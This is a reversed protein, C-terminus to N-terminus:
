PPPNPSRSRDVEEMAQTLAELSQILNPNVNIQGFREEYAALTNTFAAALAKFQQPSFTVM